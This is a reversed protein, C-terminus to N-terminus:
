ARAQKSRAILEAQLKEATAPDLGPLSGESVTAFSSGGATQIYLSSLGFIRMMLPRRIDVNQIKEYPIMTNRLNLVGFQKRFGEKTVGYRYNKYDLYASLYSIGVGIAIIVLSLIVFVAGVGAAGDVFSAVSSFLLIITIFLVSISGSIAKYHMYRPNLKQDM